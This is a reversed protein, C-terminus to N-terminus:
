SQNLSFHMWNQSNQHQRTWSARLTACGTCGILKLILCLVFYNFHSLWLDHTNCTDELEVEKVVHDQPALFPLAVLLACVGSESMAKGFHGQFHLFAYLM